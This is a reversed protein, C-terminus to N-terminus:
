GTEREQQIRLDQQVADEVLRQGTALMSPSMAPFEKGPKDVERNPITGDNRIQVLWTMGHGDFVDWRPCRENLCTYVYVIGDRDEAPIARAQVGPQKCRPCRKAEELTTDSM